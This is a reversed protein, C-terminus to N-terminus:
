LPNFHLRHTASGSNVLLPIAEDARTNTWQLSGDLKSIMGLGRGWGSSPNPVLDTYFLANGALLPPSIGDLIVDTSIWNLRGTAGDIAVPFIACGNGSCNFLPTFVSLGDSVPHYSSGTIGTFLSWVIQGTSPDIGVIHPQDDTPRDVFSTHTVFLGGSFVPISAGYLGATWVPALTDANFAALDGGSFLLFNGFIIPQFPYVTRSDYGPPKLSTPIDMEMEIAGTAADLVHLTPPSFANFGGGDSYTAVYIKENYIVPDSGDLIDDENPNASVNTEWVTRRTLTNVAAVVGRAGRIYCINADCVPSGIDWGFSYDGIPYDWVFNGTNIDFSNISNDRASILMQNGIVEVRAFGFGEDWDTPVNFETQSIAGSAANLRLVKDDRSYDIALLYADSALGTDFTTTSPPADGTATQQPSTTTTTNISGTSAPQDNTIQGGTGPAPLSSGGGCASLVLLLLSLFLLQAVAFPTNFTRPFSFAFQGVSAGTRIIQYGNAERMTTRQEEQAMKTRLRQGKRVTKIKM